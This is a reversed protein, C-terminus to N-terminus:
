KKYRQSTISFLIRQAPVRDELMANLFLAAKERNGAAIADTLDWTKFAISLDCVERVHAESIMEGEDTLLVLKDLESLLRKLDDGVGMVM